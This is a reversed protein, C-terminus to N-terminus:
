KQQYLIPSTIAGIELYHCDKMWDGLNIYTANEAVKMQLPLHRHGFIYYDHHQVREVERSHILLYENEGLFPDPNRLGKARSQDSWTHALRMGLDPHLWRFFWKALPNVFIRKNFKFRHDGPGLGDGHGIYVKWKGIQFREPQHFVSAGIEHILYDRMWLDHNGTFFLVPIGRDAMEALKGLLRTFGKPVVHKYEFWFDFVDGALILGGCSDQIQDLWRVIKQERIRSQDPTPAGLHFDSAIYIKKSDPLNAFRTDM